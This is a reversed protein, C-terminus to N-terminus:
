PFLWIEVNLASGFHSKLHGCCKSCELMQSITEPKPTPSLGAGATGTSIPLFHFIRHRWLCKNSSQFFEIVSSLPCLVSPLPYLTSPLWCGVSSRRVKVRIGIRLRWKIPWAQASIADDSRHCCMAHSAQIRSGPGMSVASQEDPEGSSFRIKHKTLIHLHSSTLSHPQSYALVICM